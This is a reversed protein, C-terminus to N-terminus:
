DDAFLGTLLDRYGMKGEANIATNEATEQALKIDSSRDIYPDALTM